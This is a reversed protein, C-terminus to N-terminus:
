KSKYNKFISGILYILWDSNSNKIVLLLEKVNLSNVNDILYNLDSLFFPSNPDHLNKLYSVYESNQDFYRYIKMIQKPLKLYPLRVNTQEIDNTIEMLKVTQLKILYTRLEENLTNDKLLNDLLDLRWVFRTNELNGYTKNFLNKIAMYNKNTPNNYFNVIDNSLSVKDKNNTIYDVLRNKIIEKEKLYELKLFNLDIDMQSKTIVEGKKLYTYYTFTSPKLNENEIVSYGIGDQGYKRNIPHGVIDNRIHKLNNLTKNQNINIYSKSNTITIALNYLSDVAVFLSQLLGFINVIIEADSEMEHNSHFDIVLDVQKLTKLSAALQIQKIEDNLNEIYNLIKDM